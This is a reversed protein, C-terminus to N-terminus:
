GVGSAHKFANYRHWVKVKDKIAKIKLLQNYFSAQRLINTSKCVLNCYFIPESIDQQLLTKLGVDDKLILERIM